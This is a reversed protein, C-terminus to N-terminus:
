ATERQWQACWQAVGCWDAICRKPEGAREEITWDDGKQKKIWDEAEERAFFVRAAKKYHPRSCAFSPMSQWRDDPSCDDLDDIDIQCNLRALQHLKIREAVYADQREDSWLPIDILMIPTAPHDGDIKAKTSSWDRMIACIELKSARRGNQRLLWGYINLQYEWAPKENTVVWVTTVKYDRVGYTGNALLRQVDIGGSLVWGGCTGFLREERVETEDGHEEMLSHFATGLLAWVRDVVDVEMEAFHRERLSAVRPSDLLTTASIHAKGRSYKDRSAALYLSMPLGHKNTVLM